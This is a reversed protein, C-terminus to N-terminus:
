QKYFDYQSDLDIRYKYIIKNDIIDYINGDIGTDSLNKKVDLNM